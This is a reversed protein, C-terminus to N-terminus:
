KNTLSEETTVHTPQSQHLTEQQIKIDASVIWHKMTIRDWSRNVHRIFFKPAMSKYDTYKSNQLHYNHMLSFIIGKMMNLPHNSLPM